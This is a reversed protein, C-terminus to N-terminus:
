PVTGIVVNWLYISHETVLNNKVYPDASVFEVVDQRRCRFIFLGGEASGLAGGSVIIGKEALKKANQLHEERYPTRKDMMGDVYKYSLIYLDIKDSSDTQSFLSRPSSHYRSIQPVIASQCIGRLNMYNIIKPNSDKCLLSIPTTQVIHPSNGIMKICRTPFADRQTKFQRFAISTMSCNAFLIIVIYIIFIQM